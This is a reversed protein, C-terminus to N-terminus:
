NNSRNCVVYNEHIQKKLTTNTLQLSIKLKYITGALQPGYNFWYM